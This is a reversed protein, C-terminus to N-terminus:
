EICKPRRDEDGGGGTIRLHDAREVGVRHELVAVEVQDRRLGSKKLAADVAESVSPGESEIPQM